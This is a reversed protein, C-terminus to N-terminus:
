SVGFYYVFYVGDSAWAHSFVAYLPEEPNWLFVEPRSSSTAVNFFVTTLVVREFGTISQVYTELRRVPWTPMMTVEIGDSPYSHGTPVGGRPGIRIRIASLYRDDPTGSPATQTSAIASWKAPTEATDVVPHGDSSVLCCWAVGVISVVLRM